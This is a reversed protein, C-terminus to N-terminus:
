SGGGLLNGREAELYFRRLSEASNSRPYRRISPEAKLVRQRRHEQELDRARAQLLDALSVIGVVKRSDQREVVPMQTFGTEAMRYVVVRLPEDPFATVAHRRIVEALTVARGEINRLDKRTLVGILSGRADIVPFLRQTSGAQDVIQLLGQLNSGQQLTLVSRRMVQRVFLVELPDLSAREHSTSLTLHVWM